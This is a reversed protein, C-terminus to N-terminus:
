EYKIYKLKFEKYAKLDKKNNTHWLQAGFKVIVGNESKYPLLRFYVGNLSKKYITGKIIAGKSISINRNIVFVESLIMNLSDGRKIKPSISFRQLTVQFAPRDIFRAPHVILTALKDFKREITFMMNRNLIFSDNESVLHRKCLIGTKNLNSRFMVEMISNIPFPSNAGTINFYDMMGTTVGFRTIKYRILSTNVKIPLSDIRSLALYYQPGFMPLTYLFVDETKKIASALQKNDNKQLDITKKKQIISTQQSATDAVKNDTNKSKVNDKFSDNKPPYTLSDKEVLRTKQFSSNINNKGQHIITKTRKPNVISVSKPFQLKVTPKKTSNLANLKSVQKKEKIAFQSYGSITLVHFIIGLFLHWYNLKFM